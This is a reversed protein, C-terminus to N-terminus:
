NRTATANTLDKRLPLVHIADLLPSPPPPTTAYLDTLQPQKCIDVTPRRLLVLRCAKLGPGVNNGLMRCSLRQVYVRLSEAVADLCSQM